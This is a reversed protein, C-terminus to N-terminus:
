SNSQGEEIEARRMKEVSDEDFEINGKLKMFRQLKKYRIADKLAMEVMESKSKADYIAETEKIVDESLNLTTRM